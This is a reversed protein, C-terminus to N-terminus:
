TDSGERLTQYEMYAWIVENIRDLEDYDPMLPLTAIYFNTLDVDTDSYNKRFQYVNDGQMWNLGVIVGRLKKVIVLRDDKKCWAIYTSEYIINDM